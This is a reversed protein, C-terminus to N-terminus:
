LKKIIFSELPHRKSNGKELPYGLAIVAMLEYEDSLSLIENVKHKNNLIEGLWVAGLGLAHAALLM